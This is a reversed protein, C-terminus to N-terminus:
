HDRRCIACEAEDLARVLQMANMMAMLSRVAFNNDPRVWSQLSGFRHHTRYLSAFPSDSACKATGNALLAGVRRTAAEAADPGALVVPRERLRVFLHVFSWLVGPDAETLLM